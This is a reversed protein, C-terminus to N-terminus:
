RSVQIGKEAFVEELANAANIAKPLGAYVATLYVTEVLEGPTVGVNLAGAYHVKLQPILGQAALSSVTALQRVKPDLVRRSIVDGYAFDVIAESLVPFNKLSDVVQQGDGGTTEALTRLGTERRSSVPPEQETSQAFVPCASLLGAMLVLAGPLRRTDPTFM